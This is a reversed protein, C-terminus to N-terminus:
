EGCTDFIDHGPKGEGHGGDKSVDVAMFERELLEDMKIKVLVDYGLRARATEENALVQEARHRPAGLTDASLAAHVEALGGGNTPRDSWVSACAPERDFSIMRTLLLKRRTASIGVDPKVM